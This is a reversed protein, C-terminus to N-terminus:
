IGIEEVDFVPGDSCVRLYKGGDKALVACGECAGIGCALRDELSVQCFVGAHVAMTRVAKLMGVPGCAYLAAPKRHNLMSRAVEPVTGKVGESGDDTCVVADVSLAKLEEVGVLDSASRAGVVARVDVGSRVLEGAWALLPAIGMGGALLVATGGSFGGPPASFGRGLPGLVDLAAGPRLTSMRRTVVGVVRYTIEIDGSSPLIASLSFPRRLVAACPEGGIRVHVFQGPEAARAISLAHIRMRYVAEGVRENSRVPCATLNEWRIRAM